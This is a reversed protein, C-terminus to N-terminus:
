KIEAINNKITKIRENITMFQYLDYHNNVRVKHISM